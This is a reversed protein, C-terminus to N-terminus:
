FIFDSPAIATQNALIIEFDAIMDANADAFIHLSGGIVEGRLEGAAGGFGASGIWHFADNAASRTDADIATLDIRDSGSLFDVITDASGPASDTASAWRFTDSGGNGTLRNAAQNAILIDAGGGGIGNEILSRADGEFLLANAVNGRANHGTGLNALQLLSTTTWEGPRLDITVANGYNSLDYTDSGGGDWITMFVRNAGPTAQGVGNISMQGSNPQWTYTTDGSNFSFDAGYMRQLAAIDYMMYTQPYGFTENRYGELDAGPYSRYTMVAYELSDHGPSLAPLEHGHKLGLAHGTEHLISVYAYNGLVPASYRGGLFRFWADGGVTSGDSPYFAYATEPENSMAFRM